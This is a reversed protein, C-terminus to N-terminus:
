ILHLELLACLEVLPDSPLEAPPYRQPPQGALGDHGEALVQEDVLQLQGRRDGLVVRELLVDPHYSFTKVIFCGKFTKM